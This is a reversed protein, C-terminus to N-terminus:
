LHNHVVMYNSPTSSLVKPLATLAGLRQAMEGARGTGSFSNKTGLCGHASLTSDWIMDGGM